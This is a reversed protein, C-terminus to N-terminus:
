IKKQLFLSYTHLSIRGEYLKEKASGNIPQLHGGKLLLMATENNLPQEQLIKISVPNIHLLEYILTFETYGAHNCYECGSAYYFFPKKLTDPKFGYGALEEATPHHPATCYPCLSPLLKQYIIFQFHSLLNGLSDGNKELQILFPIIAVDSSCCVLCPLYITRLLPIIDASMLGDLAIIDTSQNQLLCVSQLQQREADLILQKVSDVSRQPKDELCVKKLGHLSHHQLLCHLTTSKGSQAAGLVLAGKQRLDLDTIRKNDARSLGIRNLNAFRNNLGYEEICLELGQLTPLFTTAFTRNEQESLPLEFYAVTTFYIETSQLACLQKIRAVISQYNELSLYGIYQCEAGIQRANVVIKPGVTQFYIAVFRSHLLELILEEANHDNLDNELTVETKPTKETKTEKKKEQQLILRYEEFDVDFTDNLRGSDNLLKLCEKHKADISSRTSSRYEINVGLAKYLLDFLFTDIPDHLCITLKNDQLSIPVFKFRSFISFPIKELVSLDPKFKSLNYFEVSQQEAFALALTEENVLKHELLLSGLKTQYGREDRIEEQEKLFSELDKLSIAGSTVLIEGLKKKESM